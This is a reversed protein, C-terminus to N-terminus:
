SDIHYSKDLKFMIENRAANYSKIIFCGNSTDNEDLTFVGSTVDMTVKTGILTTALNSPTTPKAVFVAEPDDIVYVVGDASATQTSNSVALGVHVDTLSSGNAAVTVYETDGGTGQIVWEGALIETANAKVQYPHASHRHDELVRIDQKSM